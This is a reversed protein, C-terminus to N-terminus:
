TNTLLILFFKENDGDTDLILSPYITFTRMGQLSFKGRRIQITIGNVNTLDIPVKGMARNLENQNLEDSPGKLTM